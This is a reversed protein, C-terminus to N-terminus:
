AGNIDGIGRRAVPHTSARARTAREGNGDSLPPSQAFCRETLATEGALRDADEQQKGAREGDEREKRVIRVVRADKRPGRPALGAAGVVPDAAEPRRQGRREVRQEAQRRPGHGAQEEHQAPAPEPRARQGISPGLGRPQHQEDKGDRHEEREREAPAPEVALVHLGSADDPAGQGVHEPRPDARGSRHQERDRQHDQGIGSAVWTESPSTKRFSRTRKAPSIPRSVTPQTRCRSLRVFSRSRRVTTVRWRSFARFSGTDSSSMGNAGSSAGGITRSTGPGPLNEILFVWAATLVRGLAATGAGFFFASM